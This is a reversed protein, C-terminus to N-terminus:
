CTAFVVPGDYVASLVFATPDRPHLKLLVTSGVAKSSTLKFDDDFTAEGRGVAEGVALTARAKLNDAAQGSSDFQEAVTLNRRPSLAMVLGSLPSVKGAQVILQKAREQDREDAQSMSLDSCAFDDAWLIAAAPEALRGVLDRSSADDALSDGKGRAVGAVQAAYEASDSSVILHQDALLVVYQLEPTLTPDLTAVLDAGGRWVGTESGPKTFGASDLAASVTGLDADDDLRLVMASGQDSQAYAEWRANGPSFGFLRQLAAGSDNISSAASLDLRYARGLWKGVAGPEPAAADPVRLAGRVAAWDTFSLRKTAAPVTSLARTFDTHHTRDWGVKVAAGVGALLAVLLAAVLV